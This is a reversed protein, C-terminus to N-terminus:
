AESVTTLERPRTGGLAQQYHDEAAAAAGSGRQLQLLEGKIRLLEAVCWRDENRESRALAEDIAEFGEAIQGAWGLGQALEGFFWTFYPQYSARPSQELSTRLLPLGTDFDGNRILLTAHFRHAEARWIPLAHAASTDLLMAVYSEAAALDGTFLAVPCAAKNLALCLSVAHNLARADDVTSQATRRAQDPFGQLWLIRALALCAVVRQDFQFLVLPLRQVPAVYGGLMREVHRRANTQDGWYHLSTGIMQDGIPLDAPDGRDKALSYFRQALTLAVRYEGCNVRCAWLGYLARLQYQTDGLSEAIELAKAWAAGTEPIPGKSFLLSAGLATYLKMEQSARRGAEPVLSALAREVRARCEQVLSLQEWLPVAAITLAVGVPVDGTPSFAWDLAACLNGILRGYTALWEATPQREWEVEAREFLVRYHEAHRRALRDREGSEELKELAYTRTTDLLRYDM